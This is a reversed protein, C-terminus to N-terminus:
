GARPAFEVALMLLEERHEADHALMAGVLDDVSMEHEGNMLGSRRREARSLTALRASIGTRAAAFDAFATEIDQSQYDREAALQEGDLSPFSPRGEALILTLRRAYGDVDIDRLHCVQELLSFGGAPLRERYRTVPVADIARRLAAVMESLPALRAALNESEAPRLLDEILCGLASALRAMVELTGTREGSEIQALYARSIAAAAALRAQNSGRFERWARVPHTADAIAAAVEAPVEGAVERGLRRLPSTQAAASRRLAEFRQWELIVHQPNGAPDRLIVPEESM